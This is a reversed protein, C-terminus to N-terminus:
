RAGAQELRRAQWAGAASGLLGAGLTAVGAPALRTLALTAGAAVVVALAAARTRVLPTLVALFTLAAVFDIGLRRPDPLAGGALAGLATGLNWALFMSVGAGLLGSRTLRGGAVAVGYAGDTLFYASLLRGAWSPRTERGVALGLLLAQVNLALATVVLTVLPAGASLLTVASLQAAASFVTLSMLQTAACSLGIGRATVGYAVGVPIAGLWLPLLAVFGRRFLATSDPGDPGYHTLARRWAVRTAM